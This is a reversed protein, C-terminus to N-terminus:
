HIRPLLPLSAVLAAEEDAMAALRGDVDIGDGHVRALDVFLQAHGAESQALRRYFERLRPEALAEGLLTLRECSRAEVLAFVLLQEGLRGRGGSALRLLGQVYPDGTDPPLTRGRVALENLVALFHHTEEQALRALKRVLDPKDAHDAVLKVATAAAKKECHAHDGLTADLDALAVEVWRPDTSSRLINM